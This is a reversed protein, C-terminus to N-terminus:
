GVSKDFVKKTVKEAVSPNQDKFVIPRQKARDKSNIFSAELVLSLVIDIIYAVMMYLIFDLVLNMPLIPVGGPNLLDFEFFHWPYGVNITIDINGSLMQGFPFQVLAIIVVALFIWGLIPGIRETPILQKPFSRRIIEALSEKGAYKYDIKKSTTKPSSKKQM